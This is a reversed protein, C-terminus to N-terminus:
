PRRQHVETCANRLTEDDKMYNFSLRSQPRCPRAVNEKFVEGVDGTNWYQDQWATDYNVSINTFDMPARFNFDAEKLEGISTM